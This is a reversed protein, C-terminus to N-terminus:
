IRGRSRGAGFHVQDVGTDLVHRGHRSALTESQLAFLLRLALLNQFRGGYQWLELLARIVNFTETSAFAIFSPTDGAVLAFNPVV